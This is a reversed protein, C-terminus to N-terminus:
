FPVDNYGDDNRAPARLQEDIRSQLDAARSVLFEHRDALEDLTQKFADAASQVDQPTTAWGIM